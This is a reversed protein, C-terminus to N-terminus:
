AGALEYRMAPRRTHEYAPAEMESIGPSPSWERECGPPEFAPNTAPSESRPPPAARAARRRRLVFWTAGAALLATVGAGVGVGIGIKAGASSSAEPPSSPASSPRSTPTAAVPSSTPLVGITTIASPVVQFVLINEAKDCDPKKSNICHFLRADHECRGMGEGGKVNDTAPDACFNPCAGNRWSKDTCSGRVYASAGLTKPVSGTAMCINNSLCAYGQGCCTSQPTDDRCPTDQTAISGDPFYCLSYSASPCTALVVVLLPRMKDASGASAPFTPLTWCSLRSLLLRPDLVARTDMRACMQHRGERKHGCGVGVWCRRKM